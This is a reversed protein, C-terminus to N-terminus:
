GTTPLIKRSFIKPNSEEDPDKGEIIKEVKKQLEQKEHHRKWRTEIRKRNM